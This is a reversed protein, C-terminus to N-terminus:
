KCDPLLNYLREYAADYALSSSLLPDNGDPPASLLRGYGVLMWMRQKFSLDGSSKGYWRELACQCSDGASDPWLCRSSRVARELDALRPELDVLQDWSPRKSMDSLGIM